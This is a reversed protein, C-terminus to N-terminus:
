GLPSVRFSQPKEGSQQRRWMAEYAAELHRTFRETNFLPHTKRNRALKARIAALREPEDALKLALTEYEEMSSVIMEPLGIANLLSAGVRGAFATDPFALVPVGAWLADNATAHANYPRTDLFLDALALRAVHDKEKPLRPAFIIREGSIGRAEAERRLNSKAEASMESLWLVSREVRALLRMWVNFIDPLIKYSQNFCCFVFGNEPLGAAPRSSLDPLSRKDNAPFYTDPLYVVKEAYFERDDRPIVVEDALIYDIYDAGMTAAFGLWNVQIPAARHAFIGPRSGKTLGSPDIAIDIEMERILAAIDQDGKERVDLFRDFTGILRTRIESEATLGFNLGTVEFRARDHTEFVSAAVQSVVHDRLDASIYAIRIRDHAYEEGRWLSQPVAPAKRRVYCRQCQLQAAPSSSLSLFAFPGIVPNGIAVQDLIRLREKEFDAWECAQMRAHMRDGLAFPLQPKLEVTREFASLSETQRKMDNLAYGRGLWSEAFAPAFSLARDFFALADEDRGLAALANGWGHLAGVMSPKIKIAERFADIAEMLRNLGFFINGRMLWIKSMDGKLAAAKDCAALADMSRGWQTFTRALNLRFSAERPSAALAREHSALAEAFCGLGGLVLGLVSHARSSQPDLLLARDVSERAPRYEDAELLIMARHLHFEAENPALTLVKDISSLAAPYNGTESHIAALNGLAPVYGPNLAVAKQLIEIGRASDGCEHRCMGLMNLARFNGANDHLIERSLREAEDYRAMEYACVALSFKEDAQM